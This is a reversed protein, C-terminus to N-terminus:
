ARGINGAPTGGGGGSGAEGVPGSSPEGLEVGARQLDSVVEMPLGSLRAVDSWSDFPRAEVLARAGEAGLPELRALDEELANNLRLRAGETGANQAM